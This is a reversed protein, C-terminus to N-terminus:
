DRWKLIFYVIYLPSPYVLHLFSRGDVSWDFNNVLWTCSFCSTVMEKATCWTKNFFILLVFMGFSILFFSFLRLCFCITLFLSSIFCLFIVFCNFLKFSLHFPSFVLFHFKIFSVGYSMSLIFLGLM